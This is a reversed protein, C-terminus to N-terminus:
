REWWGLEFEAGAVAAAAASPFWIHFTAWQQPGIIVPAGNAVFRGAATGLAGGAGDVAGFYCELSDRVVAISSRLMCQTVQRGTSGAAPVTMGGGVQANVYYARAITGTVDDMNASQVTMSGNNATPLRSTSDVAVLMNVSISSTPVNTWNFLKVYDLYIRKTGTDNNNLAMVARTASFTALLSADFLQSSGISVVATFYSGEDSLNHMTPVMNMVVPERYRSFRAVGPASVSDLSPTPKTRAVFGNLIANSYNSFSQGMAIVAVFLIALLGVIMKERKTM